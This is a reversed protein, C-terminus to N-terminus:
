GGLSTLDRKAPVDLKHKHLFQMVMGDYDKLFASVAKKNDKNVPFSKLIEDERKRAEIKEDEDLIGKITRVASEFNWYYRELNGSLWATRGARLYGAVDQIISEALTWSSQFSTTTEAM